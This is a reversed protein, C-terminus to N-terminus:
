RVYDGGSGKVAEASGNGDLDVLRSLIGTIKQLSECIKDLNELKALALSLRKLDVLVESVQGEFNKVSGVEATLVEVQGVLGVVMRHVEELYLPYRPAASALRKAPDSAVPPWSQAIAAHEKREFEVHPVKSLSKLWPKPSEDLAGIGEVKVSGAKIWERAEPRYVQWMPGHLFECDDSLQMGFRVELIYRVREVIRGSDVELADVDFGKLAGPHVIVNRPTKVVRVGTVRFGLKVWNRPAGLREWDISGPREWQLVRFKAPYDEFVVPLRLQNDSGTLLKSGYPTLDYYKPRGASFRQDKKPKGLTEPTQSERLVLAGARVFRNKWYSVDSKVVGAIRVAEADCGEACLVGLIDLAAQPLPQPLVNLEICGNFWQVVKKSSHKVLRHKRVM